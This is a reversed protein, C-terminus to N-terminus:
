FARKVMELIADPDPERPNTVIAGDMLTYDAIMAVQDETVGVESLRQPLGCDSTLKRVAEIAKVAADKASMGTTDVGMAHAALAYQEPCADLNYEMGFPLFIANAIGHPVGAIGGASHAMAHVCGVMANTFALGAMTSAILMNSRAELNGGNKAAERLNGSIMTIASLALATAVPERSTSHLAEVAHTLADMGTSATLRPPMSVTLKPDLIATSPALYPSLFALKMDQSKDLIVAAFTVESASGATMPIAVMPKLPENILNAGQYDDLLSGGLSMLVNIGKATDMVSGGGITVIMDAGTEEATKRGKEVVAAESNEPIGDFVGAVGIGQEGLAKKIRDVYGLRQATSGTVILVNKGGLKKVEKGTEDLTDIGFIIKTRDQFEFYEPIAM